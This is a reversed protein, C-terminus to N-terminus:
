VAVGGETALKNEICQQLKQRLLWLQKKIAAVSRGTRVAMEQLPLGDTYRWTILQRGSEGVAGLCERLFSLRAACNVENQCAANLDRLFKDCATIM